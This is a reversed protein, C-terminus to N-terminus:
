LPDHLNAPTLPYASFPYTSISHIHKGNMGIGHPTVAFCLLMFLSCVCVCSFLMCSCISWVFLKHERDCWYWGEGGWLGGGGIGGERQLMRHPQNSGCCGSPPSRSSSWVPHTAPSPGGWCCTPSRKLPLSYVPPPPTAGPPACAITWFVVRHTPLSHTYSSLNHPHLLLSHTHLLHTRPSSLTRSFTHLYIFRIQTYPKTCQLVLVNHVDGCVCCCVWWWWSNVEHLLKIAQVCASAKADDRKRMWQGEAARIPAVAPLVVMSQYEGEGITSFRLRMSVYRHPHTLPRSARTNVLNCTSWTTLM